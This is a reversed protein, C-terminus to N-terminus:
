KREKKNKRSVKIILVINILIIGIAAMILSFDTIPLKLVTYEEFKRPKWYNKSYADVLSSSYSELNLKEGPMLSKLVHKELNQNLAWSFSGSWNIIKDELNNISICFIVENQKGGSWYSRQHNIIESKSYCNGCSDLWVLLIPRFDQDISSINSIFRDVSDELEIGYVLSQRLELINSSNILDLRKRSFLKEKKATEDSVGTIDYLDFSNRFYNIFVDSRTYVLADEPKKNWSVYLITELSDKHLITEKKDWLSLFYDFTEKPIEFERLSDDFDRYVGTFFGRSTNNKVYHKMGIATFEIEKIDIPKEVSGLFFLTLIIISVLSPSFNLIFGDETNLVLRDGKLNRLYVYVLLVLGIILLCYFYIM